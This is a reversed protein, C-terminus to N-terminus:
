NVRFRRYLMFGGLLLAGGSPLLYGVGDAGTHALAETHRPPEPPTVRTVPSTPTTPVAPTVPKEVVPPQVPKAPGPQEVNVSTNGHSPNGIGVVNVSNGSINVPLDVPLQLGNGSLVGPSDKTQGSAVAGGGNGATPTSRHSTSRDSHAGGGGESANTCRNGAAPNLLGVVSVTNGCANVPVNVPLQVLNGSLLGPSREAGGSADADAHAFGGVGAVALGGGAVVAAILGNRRSHRM